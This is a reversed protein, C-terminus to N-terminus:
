CGPAESSLVLELVSGGGYAELPGALHMSRVAPHLPSAVAAASAADSSFVERCM